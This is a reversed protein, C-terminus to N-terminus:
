AEAVTTAFETMIIRETKKAKAQRIFAGRTKAASADDDLNDFANASKGSKVRPDLIFYSDYGERASEEDTLILFRNEVFEVALDNYNRISWPIDKTLYFGVVNAGTTHRLWEYAAKKTNSCDISKTGARLVVSGFASSDGTNEGVGTFTTAGYNNIPGGCGDGDTLFITNVIEIGTKKMSKVLTGATFICEELPTGGLDLERPLYHNSHTFHDRNTNARANANAFTDKMFVMNRLSDTYSTGKLQSSCLELLNFYNGNVHFEGKKPNANIVTTDRDSNWSTTFAYVGFPIGARKCFMAMNIAQAITDSIQDMMSGSWDVFMLMGHNKGRPLITNKRFIDDTFRYGMMKVTDLTGTKAVMARATTKANKKLDFQKAMVNVVSQQGKLYADARANFHILGLREVEGTIRKTIEHEHVLVKSLDIDGITGYITQRSQKDEAGTKAMERLGNSIADDTTPRERMPTGGVSAGKDGSLPANTEDDGEGSEGPESSSDSAAPEEQQEDGASGSGKSQDDDSGDDSEEGPTSEGGDGAGSDSNMPQADSQEEDQEDSHDFDALEYLERSIEVVEEWSDAVDIRDIFGQEVNSFPVSIFRGLKYHLNIRDAFSMDAPTDIEGFIGSDMLQRYGRKFDRRLGPFRDQMLREIRADEVINLYSKVINWAQPNSDISEIASMLAEAGNPTYLAHAVEHGVLMDYLENTMSDWMPLTLVRSEIDFSATEVPQHQVDIDESALLRALISKSALLNDTMEHIPTTMRINYWLNVGAPTRKVMKRSFLPNKDYITTRYPNVVKRGIIAFQAYSTSFPMDLEFDHFISM